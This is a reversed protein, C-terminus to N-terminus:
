VSQPVSPLLIALLLIALESKMAHVDRESLTYRNQGGRLNRTASSCHRFQHSNQNPRPPRAPKSADPAPDQSAAPQKARIRITCARGPHGAGEDRAGTGKTDEFHAKINYSYNDGKMAFVAM